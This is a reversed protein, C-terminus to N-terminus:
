HVESYQEKTYHPFILEHVWLLQRYHEKMICLENWIPLHCLDKSRKAEKKPQMDILMEVVSWEKRSLLETNREM